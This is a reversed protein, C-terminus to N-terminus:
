KACKACWPKLQTFFDNGKDDVLIFAPFNEVTIKWVAEMGIEPFEVCEISKISDQSLVAAVGGITGLYFGGHKKCADTVEKGRNGKGIMIMSAGNTQFEDVYPDMRNSTTPGMSGCPYGEPTKAPGAYLVPYDKFYQPLGEGSDLRAKLKAHAIDRAVIITGSLSVRTSVPYKTLEKLAADIGKDLNIAIGGNDGPQQLHEPILSAPNSDMKELWIGDKNIKAKINRDASCSVGLGIPCSAGHRPLRIVRIDHAFAKGGFQAGFGIEHAKELLKAELDLDRFARGTADGTTPLNDYYHISGLKVTLLNKEASTGGIVFCIHYPPCAATGLSKMKEVLFPILTGENQIIAKTMPYLYTKNASGGGKAVMIFRYEDGEEAEIDIQAPLNCKTNVEDYMTLPANQSYRLNDQTFTNYVGRSLAEADDFGTWVQQGKEGHIIATGTDQCFPLVGKVSTEANRLLTLAVYKDNDSAEPDNLIAAVQKNHERRLMFEVDHFAQQALLTLAEPSVKLIQKGEFEATSIGEKSLLRYETEDKGKQFMPAYNFDPAKSM